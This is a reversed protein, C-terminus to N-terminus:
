DADLTKRESMVPQQSFLLEKGVIELTDLLEKHHDDGRKTSDIAASIFSDIGRGVVISMLGAGTLALAMGISQWGVGQYYKEAVSTGGISELSVLKLASVLTVFAAVFFMLAGWGAIIVVSKTPPTSEQM